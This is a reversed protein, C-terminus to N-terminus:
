PNKAEILEEGGYGEIKMTKSLSLQGIGGVLEGANINEVSSQFRVEGPSSGVMIGNNLILPQVAGHFTDSLFSPCTLHVELNIKERIQGPEPEILEANPSGPMKNEISSGEGCGQCQYTDWIQVRGQAQLEGTPNELQQAM